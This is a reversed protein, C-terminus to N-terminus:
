MRIIITSCQMERNLLNQLCSLTNKLHIIVYIRELHMAFINKETNLINDQRISFHFLPPFVLLLPLLFLLWIDCCRLVRAAFLLFCPKM